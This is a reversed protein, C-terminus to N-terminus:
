KAVFVRYQQPVGAHTIERLEGIEVMRDVCALLFWSDGTFGRIAEDMRVAGTQELLKHVRDRVMLFKRQGDDTFLKDKEEAYSYSM